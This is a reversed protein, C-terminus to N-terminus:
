LEVQCELRKWVSASVHGCLGWGSGHIRTIATLWSANLSIRHTTRQNNKMNHNNMGTIRPGHPLWAGNANSKACRSPPHPHLPDPGFFSSAGKKVEVIVFTKSKKTKLQCLTKLDLIWLTQAPIQCIACYVQRTILNNHQSQTNNAKGYRHRRPSISLHIQSMHIKRPSTSHRRQKPYPSRSPSPICYLLARTVVVLLCCAVLLCAVSRKETKAM